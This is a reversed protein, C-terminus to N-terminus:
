RIFLLERYKPLHWHEDEVLSELMDANTRIKEFYPIVQNSYATAKEQPDSIARVETLEKKLGVLDKSIKECLYSIPSVNKEVLNKAQNEMGMSKLNNHLESLRNLTKYASSLIYSQSM